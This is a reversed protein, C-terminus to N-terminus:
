LLGKLLNDGLNLRGSLEDGIRGFGKLQSDTTTINTSTEANIERRLSQTLKATQQRALGAVANTFVRDLDTSLQIQQQQLTGKVTATAKMRRVDALAGGLAKALTSQGANTETALRVADIGTDLKVNIREEALAARIDLDAVASQLRAVLGPQNVLDRPGLAVDQM